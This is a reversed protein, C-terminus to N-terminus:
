IQEAYTPTITKSIEYGNDLVYTVIPVYLGAEKYTFSPNRGSSTDGFQVRNGPSFEWIIKKTKAADGDSRSSSFNVKLPVSGTVQNASISVDFLGYGVEIAKTLMYKIGTCKQIAEVIFQYKGNPLSPFDGSFSNTSADPTFRTVLTRHYTGTVHDPTTASNVYLHERVDYPKAINAPADQQPGNAVRISIRELTSKATNNTTAKVSWSLKGTADVTTSVIELGITDKIYVKTTNPTACVSYNGSITVGRSGTGFFRVRGIQLEVQAYFEAFSKNKLEVLSWFDSTENPSYTAWRNGFEAFSPKVIIVESWFDSITTYTRIFNERLKVVEKPKKSLVVTNSKRESLKIIDSVTRTFDAM